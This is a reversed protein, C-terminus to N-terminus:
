TIWVNGNAFARNYTISGRGSCHYGDKIITKSFCKKNQREFCIHQLELM